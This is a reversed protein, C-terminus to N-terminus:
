SRLVRLERIEDPADAQKGRKKYGAAQARYLESNVM